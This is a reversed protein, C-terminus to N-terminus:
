LELVKFWFVIYGVDVLEGCYYFMKKILDIVVVVDDNYLKIVVWVM